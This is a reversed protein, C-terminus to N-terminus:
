KRAHGTPFHDHFNLTEAALLFFVTRLPEHRAKKARCKAGIRTLYSQDALDNERHEAGVQDADTLYAAAVRWGERAPLHVSEELTVDM